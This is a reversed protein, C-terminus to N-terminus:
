KLTSLKFIINNKFILFVPIVNKKLIVLFFFLLFSVELAKATDLSAQANISHVSSFTATDVEKDMEKWVREAEELFEKLETDKARSSPMEGRQFYFIAFNYSISTNIVLM